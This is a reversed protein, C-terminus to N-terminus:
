QMEVVLIHIWPKDDFSGEGTSWGTGGSSVSSLDNSGNVNAVSSHFGIGWGSTKVVNQAGYAIVYAACNGPVNLAAAGAEAMVELATVDTNRGRVMIVGRLKANAPPQGLSIVITDTPKTSIKRTKKSPVFLREHTNTKVKSATSDLEDLTWEPKMKLILDLDMTNPGVTKPGLYNPMGPYILETGNAFGRPMDKYERDDAEFTQNNLGVGVPNSVVSSAAGANATSTSDAMASSSFAFIMTSVSLVALFKKM